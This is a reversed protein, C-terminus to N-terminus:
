AVGLALKAGAWLRQRNALGNTGGNIKRTLRVFDGVDAIANLNHDRWFCGASRAAMGPEALLDPFTELDAGLAFGARAYNARGTVMILGRGRYRFGDGPHTNGLDVRGEYTAQAPTPDWLEVTYRLGGSEHGVQALFAAQQVPTDIEFEQMAATIFPAFTRARDIRAGTCAALLEPTM